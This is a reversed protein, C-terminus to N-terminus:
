SSKSISNVSLQKARELQTNLSGEARSKTPTEEKFLTDGVMYYKPTAFLSYKM